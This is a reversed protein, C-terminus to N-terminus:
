DQDYEDHRRIWFESADYERRGKPARDLIGYYGMLFEGGRATTAYTHTCPAKTSSSHASARPETMYGTADAGTSKALQDIVPPAGAELM